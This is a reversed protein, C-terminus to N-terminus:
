VVIKEVIPTTTTNISTSKIDSTTNKSDVFRCKKTGNLIQHIKMMKESSKVQHVLIDSHKVICMHRGMFHFKQSHKHTVGCARGALGTIYIDELNVFPIDLGKEYLCRSTDVSMFYGSGSLANPYVAENFIYTPVEWKTLYERTDNLEPRIVTSNAGLVTGLITNPYKKRMILSYKFLSLLNLYCDDDTKMLFEVGLGKPVTTVYKLMFM